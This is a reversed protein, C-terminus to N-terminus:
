KINYNLFRDAFFSEIMLFLDKDKDFSGRFKFYHSLDEASIEKVELPKGLTTFKSFSDDKLFDIIEPTITKDGLVFIDRPLPCDQSLDSFIRYFYEYWNKKNDDIIKEIGASLHNSIHKERFSKLNSEADDIFTKLETAIKRILFNRGKPFSITEELIGDKITSLESTEGGIELFMFRDSINLEDRLFIFIVYPLTHFYVTTEGLYRSLLERTKDRVEKLILSMYVYMDITKAHKDDPDQLFYGNLAVKMAESEILESSEKLSPTKNQWQSKFIKVEDNILKDLFNKKVKFSQEKRVKIIRTQSVGWLLSFVCLIKDPRKQYNKTLESLVRNISTTTSRWHAQFDIDFLFNIPYRASSIIERSGQSKELLMGGVSASSIDIIAILEKKSKNKRFLGM